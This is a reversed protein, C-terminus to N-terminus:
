IQKRLKRVREASKHLDLIKTVKGHGVTTLGERILFEKGVELKDVHNQPSTFTLIALVTQGPYVKAVGVYEQKADWDEGDYYFQPRYGSSAPTNRGGEESTLSTIEAEIDGNQNPNKM